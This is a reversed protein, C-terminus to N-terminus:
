SISPGLRLPLRSRAVAVAWARPPPFVDIPLWPLEGRRDDIISVDPDDWDGTTRQQRAGSGGPKNWKARAGNILGDLDSDNVGGSCYPACALRIQLDVWGRGIMTAIADRVSNHWKGAIRSQELLTVIEDDTRGTAHSEFLEAQGQPALALLREIAYRPMNKRVHLTVLEPVYGRARKKETPYSVTGALRMVRCVDEVDDTGLLTKLAINANRLQDNTTKGDDSAFYLHAREHPMRGTIVLMSTPLAYAELVGSIRDLGGADDSDSWYFASALFNDASSRGSPGTEGQRLSVGVYINFGAINKKEAFAAAKELEFPLFHAAANPRGDGGMDAVAIEIWSNPYDKVFEPAFLAYLHENIQARNPRLPSAELAHGDFCDATTAGNGSAAAARGKFELCKPHDLLGRQELVSYPFRGIQGVTLDDLKKGAKLYCEPHAYLRTGYHVLEYEDTRGHCFRCGLM